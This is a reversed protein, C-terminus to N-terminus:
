SNFRSVLDDELLQMEDVQSTALSGLLSSRFTDNELLRAEDVLRKGEKLLDNESQAVALSVM